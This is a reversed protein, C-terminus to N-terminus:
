FFEIKGESDDKKEEPNALNLFTSFDPATEEDSKSANQSSPNDFMGMMASTQEESVPVGQNTQKSEVLHHLISLVKRIDEHSDEKTDITIRM